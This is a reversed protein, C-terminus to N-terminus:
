KSFMFACNFVLNSFARILLEEDGVFEFIEIKKINLKIKKTGALMQCRSVTTILIDDLRLPQINLNINGSDKTALLNLDDVIRAMREIEKVANNLSGSLKSKNHLNQLATEIDSLIISLPTRLEHSADAIFTKQMKFSEELRTLLGNFTRVLRMIENEIKPVPLRNELNSSTIDNVSNIIEDVPQLARKNIFYGGTWVFVILLFAGLSFIFLLLNLEAEITDTPIAIDVKYLFTPILDYILTYQRYHRNRNDSIDFFYEKPIAERPLVIIDSIESRSPIYIENKNINKTTWLIKDNEYIYIYGDANINKTMQLLLDKDEVYLSDAKREISQSLHYLTMLIKQKIQENDQYEDSDPIIGVFFNKQIYVGSYGIGRKLSGNNRKNEFPLYGWSKSPPM